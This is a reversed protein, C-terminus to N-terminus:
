WVLSVHTASGDKGFVEEGHRETTTKDNETIPFNTITGIVPEEEAGSASSEAKAICEISVLVKKRTESHATRINGQMEAKQPIINAAQGANLSGRFILKLSDSGALMVGPRMGIGGVAEVNLELHFIFM